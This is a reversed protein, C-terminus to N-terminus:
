KLRASVLSNALNTGRKYVLSPPNPFLRNLEPDEEILHWDQKLAKKLQKFQDYYETCLPLRVQATQKASKSRYQIYRRRHVFSTRSFAKAMEVPSYGRQLLVKTLTALRKKHDEENSNNRISRIAEGKILGAYVHAPHNSYRHLFANNGVPKEKLSLDLTGSSEFRSGKFLVLDLFNASQESYDGTFKILPSLSNAFALLKLFEDKNGNLMILIDDRYRGYFLSKKGMFEILKSEIKYLVLDSIAPAAVNGMALGIKQSYLTKNFEFINNTILETTLDVLFDTTPRPLDYKFQSNSMLVEAVEKIAVSHDINTYLSTVDLTVLSIDKPLCLEEIKQIVQTSDQLYTPQLAVLPQLFHDVFIGIRETPTNNASVIPRVKPPNKHMKPLFYLNALRTCENRVPDLFEFTKQDIDGELHGRKLRASINEAITCTRDETIQEFYAASQLFELGKQIYLEKDIAVVASGKDQKKIVVNKNARLRKIAADLSRHAKSKQIKPLSRFIEAMNVTLRKLYEELIQHNRLPQFNSKNRFKWSSKNQNADDNKPFM